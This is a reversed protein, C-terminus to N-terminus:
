GARPPRELTGGIHSVVATDHAAVRASGPCPLALTIAAPPLALGIVCAACASCPHGGGAQAKALLSDGHGAHDGAHDDVHHAVVAAGHGAAPQAMGLCHTMGAAAVAQLPLALAVFCAVLFRRLRNM